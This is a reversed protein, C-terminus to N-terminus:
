VHIVCFTNAFQSSLNWPHPCKTCGGGWIEYIHSLPGYLIPNFTVSVWLQAGELSNNSVKYFNSLKNANLSFIQKTLLLQSKLVLLELPPISVLNVNKM